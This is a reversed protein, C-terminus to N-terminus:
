GPAPGDPPTPTEKGDPSDRNLIADRIREFASRDTRVNHAYM